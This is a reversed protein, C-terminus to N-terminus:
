GCKVRDMFHIRRDTQRDTPRGRQIDTQREPQSDIQKYPFEYSRGGHVTFGSGAPKSLFISILLPPLNHVSVISSAKFFLDIVLQM